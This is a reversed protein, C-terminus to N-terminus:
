VCIVEHKKLNFKRGSKFMWSPRSEQTNEDHSGNLEAFHSIGFFTSWFHTNLLHANIIYVARKTSVMLVESGSCFVLDQLRYDCM